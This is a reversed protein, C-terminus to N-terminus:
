IPSAIAPSTITRNPRVDGSALLDYVTVSNGYDNAIYVEGNHEDIAVGTPRVLGTTPGAIKRKLVGTIRDYVSVSYAVNNAVFLENTRHSIAIQHPSDGALGAITLSPVINGSSQPPYVTVTNGFYNAVFVQGQQQAWAISVNGLTLFMVALAAVNRWSSRNVELKSQAM